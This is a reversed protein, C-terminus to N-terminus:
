VRVGKLMDGVEIEFQPITGNNLIRVDILEQPIGPDDGEYGPRVVEVVTGHCAKIMMAENHFQVDPVVVHRAYNLQRMHDYEKKWIDIWFSEGFTMRGMETGVRQLFTRWTMSAVVRDGDMIAIARHPNNKWDDVSEIPVGTLAAVSLKLRDAFAHRVFGYHEVLFQAATDKGVGMNGTLGILM